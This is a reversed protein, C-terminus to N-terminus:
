SVAERQCEAAAEISASDIVFVHAPEWELAGFYPLAEMLSIRARREGGAEYVWAWTHTRPSLVRILMKLSDAALWLAATFSRGSRPEGDGAMRGDASRAIWGAGTERNGYLCIEGAPEANLVKRTRSM